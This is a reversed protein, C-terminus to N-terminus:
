REYAIRRVSNPLVNACGFDRKKSSIGLTSTIPPDAMGRGAAAAPALDRDV